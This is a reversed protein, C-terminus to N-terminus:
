KAHKCARSEPMSDKCIVLYGFLWVVLSCTHLMRCTGCTREEDKLKLKLNGIVSNRM